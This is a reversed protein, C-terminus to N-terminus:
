LKLIMYSLILDRERECVCKKYKGQYLISKQQTSERTQAQKLGAFANWRHKPLSVEVTIKYMAVTMLDETWPDTPETQKQRAGLEKGRQLM